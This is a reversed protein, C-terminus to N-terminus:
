TVVSCRASSGTSYLLNGSAIQKECPLTHIDIGIEWNMGGGKGGEMDVHGNEVDTDRNRCILEDTGNKRPEM